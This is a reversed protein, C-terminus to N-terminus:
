PLRLKPWRLTPRASSPARQEARAANLAEQAGQRALAAQDRASPAIFNAQALQEARRAELTAQALAAELRLVQASAAQRAARASGVRQQLVTRTRADIMPPAVPVLRAVEDGARVPDGVKLTPRLLAASTPATIVYRNALRLQGDEEIAQEFTGLRVTAVEVLLPRPRYAMYALAGAAMLLAAGLLWRRWKKQAQKNNM